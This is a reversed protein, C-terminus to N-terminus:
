QWCPTDAADGADREGEGGATTDVAPYFAGLLISSIMLFPLIMGLM